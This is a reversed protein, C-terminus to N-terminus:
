PEFIVRLRFAEFEKQEKAALEAAHNFESVSLEKSIAAQGRRRCMEALEAAIGPDSRFGVLTGTEGIHLVDEHNDQRTYLYKNAM